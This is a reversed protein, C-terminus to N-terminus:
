DQECTTNWTTTEEPPVTYEETSCQRPGRGELRAALTEGARHVHHRRRAPAHGPRPCRRHHRDRAERPFLRQGGTGGPGLPGAPGPPGRESGPNDSTFLAYTEEGERAHTRCAEYECLHRACGM